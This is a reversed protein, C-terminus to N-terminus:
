SCTPCCTGCSSPECTTQTSTENIELVEVDFNLTQGALPHNLDVSIKEDDVHTVRAPVQGGDPTQLGIVDGVKPQVNEPLESRQYDHVLREDRPGFGQEPPLSFSKKENEEMGVLADEFGKIISGAGVQVEVPQGGVTSHFVDGNEMKGTYDVKVFHGSEVKKM